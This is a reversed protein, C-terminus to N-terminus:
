FGRRRYEGCAPSKEGNVPKRSCRSFINPYEILVTILKYNEETFPLIAITKMHFVAFQMDQWWPWTQGFLIAKKKAFKTKDLSADKACRIIRHFNSNSLGLNCVCVDEVDAWKYFYKKRFSLVCIGNNSVMYKAFLFRMNCFVFYAVLFLLVYVALAAIIDADSLIVANESVDKAMSYAIWFFAFVIAPITIVLEVILSGKEESNLLVCKEPKREDM